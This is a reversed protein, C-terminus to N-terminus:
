HFNWIKYGRKILYRRIDSAFWLIVFFVLLVVLGIWVGTLAWLSWICIRINTDIM